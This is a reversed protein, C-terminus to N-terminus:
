GQSSVSKRRLGNVYGKLPFVKLIRVDKDFDLHESLDYTWDVKIASWHKLKVMTFNGPLVYDSMKENLEKILRPRPFQAVIFHELSTHDDWQASRVAPCYEDDRINIALWLRLALDITRNLSDESHSQFAGEQALASRLDKRYCASGDLVVKSIIKVIIQVHELGVPDM